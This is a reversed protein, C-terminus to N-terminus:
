FSNDIYTWKSDPVNYGYGAHDARWMFLAYTGKECYRIYEWRREGYRPQKIQGIYEPELSGLTDPYHNHATRYKELAAVIEDGHRFDEPTTTKNECGALALCVFARFLQFALRPM